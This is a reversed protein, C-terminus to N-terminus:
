FNLIIHVKGGLDVDRGQIKESELSQKSFDMKLTFANLSVESCVKAKYLTLKIYNVNSRHM